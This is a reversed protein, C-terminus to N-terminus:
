FDFFVFIDWDSHCWYRIFTVLFELFNRHIPIYVTDCRSVVVDRASHKFQYKHVVCDANNDSSIRNDLM